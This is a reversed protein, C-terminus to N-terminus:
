ARVGRAGPGVGMSGGTSFHIWLGLWRITSRISPRPVVEAQGDLGTREWPTWGGDVMVSSGKIVSKLVWIESCMSIVSKHSSWQNSPMLILRSQLHQVM